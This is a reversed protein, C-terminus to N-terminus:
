GRVLRLVGLTRLEEAEGDGNTDLMFAVGAAARRELREYYKQRESEWPASNASDGACGLALLITRLSVVETAARPNLIKWGSMPPQDLCAERLVGAEVLAIQPRLTSIIGEVGAVPTPAVPPDFLSARPRSVTLRNAGIVGTIEYSAGGVVVVGGTNVGLQAFNVDAPGTLTTGAITVLGRFLRQALWPADRFLSPAYLILDRDNAFISM